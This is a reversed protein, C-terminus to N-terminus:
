IGHIKNFIKKYDMDSGKIPNTGPIPMSGPIPISIIFKKEKLGFWYMGDSYRKKKLKMDSLLYPLRQKLTKIHQNNTIELKEVITNVLTTFKIRYEIDDVIEYYSNIFQKTEETTNEKEYESIIDTTEEISIDDSMEFRNKLENAINRPLKIEKVISIDSINNYIENVYESKTSNNYINCLINYVAINTNKFIIGASKLHHNYLILYSDMNLENKSLIHYNNSCKQLDYYTVNSSDIRDMNNICPVTYLPEYLKQRSSQGREIFQRIDFENSNSDNRLISRNITGKKKGNMFLSSYSEQYKLLNELYEETTIDKIYNYKDIHIQEKEPPIKIYEKDTVLKYSIKDDYFISYIDTIYKIYKTHNSHIHIFILKRENMLKLEYIKYLKDPTYKKTDSM